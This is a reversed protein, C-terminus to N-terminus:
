IDRDLAIIQTLRGFAAVLIGPEDHADQDQLLEAATRTYQAVSGFAPGEQWLVVNAVRARM